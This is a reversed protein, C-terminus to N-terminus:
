RDSRFITFLVRLILVSSIVLLNYGFVQYLGVSSTVRPGGPTGLLMVAVVAITAGLVTLLVQHLLSAIVRRDREDALLRVNVGLRGQELQRTVRDFRRPLRRLVPLLALLEDTATQRLAGPELRETLYTAAHRRAEGFIDFGPHLRTLTGEVTALARFVAAVEPPVALGYASVLRFLDTFMEIGPSLGASLHRAMFQGLARELRQEDIEEPRTVVELLADCMGAPDGAGVAILLNQLSSRLQGDLRGVSGFDLLALGGDPLLLINGPHPDAHFVGDIMIQLLLAGLLARALGQRDLGREEIVPGAAGLPVGDLWEQVLVRETCLAEYLIPLRVGTRGAARVAAMNRAEIRFDLEERLAAGFGAALDSAGLASGWQTRRELTLAMRGVIDLDREVVERIDPRQVKVVVEDGSRLRARHVQAISAAALPKRDFEAFVEEPPAGLEQRLVREVDSPPAPPVQDQLRSLEDVFEQPLLDRRTSLVQGLKVFTVGGEELALRLSRALSADAPRRRGRLLPGLGHRVAIRSIRAYRRTRALRRRSARVLEGPGPLSGTPVLAEAVVIFTMAVLVSVGLSVTFFAGPNDSQINQAFVGVFLFGLLGGLLTRVTGVSVGLLRRAAWALGTVLAVSTLLAALWLLTPNM